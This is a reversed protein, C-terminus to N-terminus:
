DMDPGDDLEKWHTILDQRLGNNINGAVSKEAWGFFFDTDAYYAIVQGIPKASGEPAKLWLLLEHDLPTNDDM